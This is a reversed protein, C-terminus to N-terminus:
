CIVAFYQPMASEFFHLHLVHTSTGKEILSLGLMYLHPMVSCTGSVRQFACWECLEEKAMEKNGCRGLESVSSSVNSAPVHEFTQQEFQSFSLGHDGPQESRDPGIEAGACNRPFRALLLLLIFSRRRVKEGDDWSLMKLFANFRSENWV